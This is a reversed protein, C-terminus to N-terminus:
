NEHNLLSFEQSYFQQQKYSISQNTLSVFSKAYIYLQRIIEARESMQLGCVLDM